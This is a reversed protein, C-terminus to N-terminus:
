VAPSYYVKVTGGFSDETALGLPTGGGFAKDSVVDLENIFVISGAAIPGAARFLFVGPGDYRYRVRIRIESQSDPAARRLFAPVVFVGLLSKLFGRRTAM